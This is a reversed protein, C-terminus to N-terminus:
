IINKGKFRWHKWNNSWDRSLKIKGSHKEVDFVKQILQSKIDASRLFFEVIEDQFGTDDGEGERVIIDIIIVTLPNLTHSMGRPRHRPSSRPARGRTGGPRPPPPLPVAPDPLSLM